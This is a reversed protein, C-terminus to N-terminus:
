VLIDVFISVVFIKGNRAIKWLIKVIKGLFYCNKSRDRKADYSIDNTLDYIVLICFEM